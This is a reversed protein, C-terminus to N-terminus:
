PDERQERGRKLRAYLAGALNGALALATYVVLFWWSHWPGCSMVPLFSVAVAVPYLPCIGWRIGAGYGAVAATFPCAAVPALIWAFLLTGWGKTWYAAIMALSWFVTATLLAYPVTERWKWRSVSRIAIGLERQIREVDQGCTYWRVVWGIAYLWTFLGWLVWGMSGGPYGQCTLAWFVFAGCDLLYNWLSNTFFSGRERRWIMAGACVAAGWLMGALLRIWEAGQTSGCLVTLDSAPGYPWCIMLPAMGAAGCLAGLGLRRLLERRM